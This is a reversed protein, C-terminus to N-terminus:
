YNRVVRFGISSSKFYSIFGHRNTSYADTNSNSWSGGRAVRFTGPPSIWASGDNPADRYNDHHWDECWEWVNGHMDYLGWANPEKSAVIHTKGGSNKSYWGVKELDSKENGSYYHCSTGARCAYEWEAESPLRYIKTPDLQNLKTIFEQADDWSINEVPLSDGKYYSPDNGMVKKWQLQTVETTMIYFPSITVRHIPNEDYRFDSNLSDYGMIFTGTPIPVIDIGLSKLSNNSWDNIIVEAKSIFPSDPYYAKLKVFYESVKQWNSSYEILKFLADDASSCNQYNNVVEEFMDVARNKNTESLLIAMRYKKDGENEGLEEGSKSVKGSLVVHYLGDEGYGVDIIQFGPLLIGTSKSEVWDSKLQFDEMVTVAQISIGAREIAKLKADLIAEDRDHQQSDRHGNSIGQVSVDITQQAFTFATLLVIFVLSFVILKMYIGGMNIETFSVTSFIKGKDM